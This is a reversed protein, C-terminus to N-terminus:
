KKKTPKKKTTRKKTGSATAIWDESFPNKTSQAQKGSESKTPIRDSAYPNKKKASQESEAPGKWEAQQKALSLITARGRPDAMKYLVSLQRIEKAEKTNKTDSELMPRKGTALWKPSVGCVEAAPFVNESKIAVNPNNRWQSVVAQSIGSLRSFEAPTLGAYELALEIREKLTSM